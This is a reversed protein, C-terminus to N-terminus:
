STRWRTGHRPPAPASRARPPREMRISSFGRTTTRTSSRSCASCGKGCSGTPRSIGREGVARLEEGLQAGAREACAAFLGEKSDFYAYLMPKTIGSAKAIDEMSCGDFGREAFLRSAAEIM